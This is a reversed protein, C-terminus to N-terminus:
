RHHPPLCPPHTPKHQCRQTYAKVRRTRDEDIQKSTCARLYRIRTRERTRAGASMRTRLFLFLTELFCCARCSM